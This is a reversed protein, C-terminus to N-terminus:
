YGDSCPAVYTGGNVSQYRCNQRQPATAAGVAGGVVAGGAAGILTSKTNGGIAQGALAGGAAGILAGTGARNIQQDTASCGALVMASLAAIAAFSAKRKM